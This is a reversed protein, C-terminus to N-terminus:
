GLGQAPAATDQDNSLYPHPRARLPAGVLVADIELEVSVM